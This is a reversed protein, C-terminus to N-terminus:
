EVSKAIERWEELEPIGPKRKGFLQVIQQGDKDFCELATVMGDATPKRVIWSQVIAAMKVHLNFDPDLVNFWGEHDLLKHIEGTHIQIMGKNGVFVMIPLKKESALQCITRISDNPVKVAYSGAPALRLAQTRTVKYKKLMAFFDHTDKLNIWENRFNEIDIEHDPLETESQHDPSVEESTNQNESRFENVLLEFAHNNSESTLYVKHIAEGDGAFFQISKRSKEGTPENVAFASKWCSFFIRLDIDEGVFLGIAPSNLSPNLYVGKREHVVADNRTLGMVKGLEEIRGLITQFEPKLRIVAIEGNPLKEGVQSALLEAESVGLKEAANRIRLHPNSEKLEAWRERLSQTKTEM